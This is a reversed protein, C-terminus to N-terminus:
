HLTFRPSVLPRLPAFRMKEPMPVASGAKPRIFGLHPVALVQGNQWIAPLSSRVAAPIRSKKLAPEDSV